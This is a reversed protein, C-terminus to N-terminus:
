LPGPQRGAERLLLGRVAVRLDEDSLEADPDNQLRTTLESFSKEREPIDYGIVPQHDAIVKEVVEHDVSSPSVAIQAPNDEAPQFGHEPGLQAVLVQRKLAKGLEDTLQSLEVQKTLEFLASDEFPPPQEQVEDTQPPFPEDSTPTTM